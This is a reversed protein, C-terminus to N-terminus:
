HVPRLELAKEFGVKGNEAEGIVEIDDQVALYSAVGIRVMEHDDVLLVKIL